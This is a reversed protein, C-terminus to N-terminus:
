EKRMVWRAVGQTGAKADDDCGTHHKKTLWYDLLRLGGGGGVLRFLVAISYWEGRVLMGEKAGCTHM